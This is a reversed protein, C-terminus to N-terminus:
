EDQNPRFKLKLERFQSFVELQSPVPLPQSELIAREVADDCAPLGSSKLLKPHGIVEGTPILSINFILEPKGSGCVQKNVHQKIKNTILGVYKAVESQNAGGAQSVAETKVIAPGASKVPTLKNDEALMEQQLKKLAELDAKTPKPPTPVEKPKTEEKSKEVKDNAKPKEIPASPKVPEKKIKIEADPTAPSEQKPEPKSAEVPKLEDAVDPQKLQATVKPTPLTDWLEVEAVNMPQVTKWHVSFLLLGFLIVHVLFTLVGAQFAIEKEHHRIM